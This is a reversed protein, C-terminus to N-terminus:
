LNEFNIIKYNLRLSIFEYRKLIVKFDLEGLFIGKGKGEVYKNYAVFVLPVPHLM